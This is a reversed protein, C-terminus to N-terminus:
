LFTFSINVFLKHLNKKIRKSTMKIVNKILFFLILYDIFKNNIKGSKNVSSKIVTNNNITYFLQVIRFGADLLYKEYNLMNKSGYSYSIRKM